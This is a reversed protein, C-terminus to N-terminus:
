GGSDSRQHNLGRLRRDAATLTEASAPSSQNRGRCVEVTARGRRAARAVRGRGGRGARATGAAQAARIPDRNATVVTWGRDTLAKAANLGLGSTTGTILVTGASNAEAM